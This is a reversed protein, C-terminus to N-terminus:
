ISKELIQKDKNETFYDSFITKLYPWQQKAKKFSCHNKKAFKKLFETKQVEKQKIIWIKLLKTPREYQTFKSNAMKKASAIGSTLFYNIYVLFRWHQNKHIRSKFRDALSLYYYAKNMEENNYERPLNEDIWLFFDNFDMNNVYDFANTIDPNEKSKFILRLADFITEQKERLNLSMIHDLLIEKEFSLMQLDNTAARLDGRSYSALTELAKEQIKLNEEHAIKRLCQMIEEKKLQKFQIIQSIKRIEKLKDSYADNAILVIPWKSDKIIRLIELAGNHEISEAEEIVFIKGKKFFSLNQSSKGLSDNLNQRNLAEGPNREILDYNFEKAIAYISATKGAGSPGYIILSKKQMEKFNRIFYIIKEISDRQGVIDKIKRPKYKETWLAM